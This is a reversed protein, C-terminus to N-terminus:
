EKTKLTLFNIFGVFHLFFINTQSIFNLGHFVFILHHQIIGSFVVKLNCRLRTRYKTGYVLRVLSFQFFHLFSTLLGINHAKEFPTFHLIQNSWYYFISFNKVFINKYKKEMKNKPWFMKLPSVM